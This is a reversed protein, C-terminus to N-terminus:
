RVGLGERISMGRSGRGEEEAGVNLSRERRRLWCTLQSTVQTPYRAANPSDIGAVRGSSLMM